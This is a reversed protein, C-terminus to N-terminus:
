SRRSRGALEIGRRQIRWRREIGSAAATPLSRALCRRHLGGWGAPLVACRCVLLLEVLSRRVSRLRCVSRRGSGLLSRGSGGRRCSMPESRRRRGVWGAASRGCRSVRRFGTGCSLRRQSRCDGCREGGYSVVVRALLHHLSWRFDCGIHAPPVRGSGYSWPEARPEDGGPTM